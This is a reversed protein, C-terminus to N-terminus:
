AASYWTESEMERIVRYVEQAFIRHGWKNIHGSGPRTNTFGFPLRYTERYEALFAGSLDVFVIGNKECAARMARLQEEDTEAYAKGERDVRIVPDYVILPQVQAAECERAVKEMLAELLGAYTEADAEQAARAGADVADGDNMGKVYKTYFLRLYPLKQLLEIAGGSHSPIDPLREELVAEIEEPAFAVSNAEIVVYDEPAYRALAASLHKISYLLTHGATGINYTYKEGGMFTNLQAAANDEQAVNFGEMNSSGMLLIDIREGESYDLLNNFGENNTRGLAFGETGKSYFRNPEWYYETAGTENEYHVPVNYYLACLLCLVTLAIIGAAAAKLLWAFIKKMRKAM